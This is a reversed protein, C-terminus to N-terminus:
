LERNKGKQVLTLILGAAVIILAIVVPLFGPDKVANLGTVDRSGLDQVTYEGVTNGIGVRYIARRSHQQWREFVAIKGEIGRFIVVGGEFEFGQGNTIPRSIGQEDQLLARDERGFSAQYLRVGGTRLPKNVEISYSPIVLAGNRRVEVTSIWDKPRGDDYQQYEFDVLRVTYDGKLRIEDGKGMYVLSERRGAGSLMAGVILLLLGVHILDPGHRRGAKRRERSILRDAACVALNIFFLGVPVLFPWSRFFFDFNLILILQALFAGYAHFYFVPDKGQPILTSIISLAAIILILVVALRVSRFFRYLAFL